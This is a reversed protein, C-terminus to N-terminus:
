EKRKLLYTNSIAKFSFDSELGRVVIGERDVGMNLLSKGEAYQLMNDILNKTPLKYGYKEIIPVMKLDLRFL